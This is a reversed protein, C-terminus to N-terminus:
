HRSRREGPDISSSRSHNPNTQAGGCGMEAAVITFLSIAAAFSLVLRRSTTM